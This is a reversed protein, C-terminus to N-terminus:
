DNKAGENAELALKRKEELFKQWAYMALSIAIVGYCLFVRFYEGIMPDGFLTKGAMPSIFFLTHFLVAGLFVQPITAKTISAGGVLLAAIAYTGVQEHSNYTNINGMNQLFIIQGWGAFVTSIVIAIVRIRNVNLGMATAVQMSQGVTRIDQGLKTQTLFKIICCAIVTLTLTAVPVRGFAFMIRIRPSFVSAALFIGNLALVIWQRYYGTLIRRLNRKQLVVRYLTLVVMVALFGIFFYLLFRDLPLRLINDLVQKTGPLFEITNRLGMGTDLLMTKNGWPIISGALYIFTLDYLGISFYGLIMGTIMEQGKTKNFLRGALFGFLAALFTGILMALFVGPISDIEWNTVLLLGIEGAMAGLVISFNLGMGCLVPILLSLILISNRSIREILERIVFSLPQGSFGIAFICLVTFIVTVWNVQFRQYM